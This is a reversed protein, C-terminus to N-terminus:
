RYPGTNRARIRELIPAARESDRFAALVSM